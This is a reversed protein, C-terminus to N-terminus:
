VSRVIRWVELGCTSILLWYVFVFIRLGFFDSEIFPLALGNLKSWIGM